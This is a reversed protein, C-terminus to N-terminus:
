AGEQSPICWFWFSIGTGPFHQTCCFAASQFSPLLFASSKLSDPPKQPVTRLFGCQRQKQFCSSLTQPLANFRPPSAAPSAPLATFLRAMLSCYALFSFADLICLFKLRITHINRPHLARCFFRTLCPLSCSRMGAIGAEIGAPPLLVVDLLLIGSCSFGSRPCPICSRLNELCHRSFRRFGSRYGLPQLVDSCINLLKDCLM